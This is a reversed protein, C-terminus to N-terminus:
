YSSKKESSIRVLEIDRPFHYYRMREGPICRDGM